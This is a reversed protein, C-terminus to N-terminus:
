SEHDREEATRRAPKLPKGTLYSLYMYLAPSVRFVDIRDPLLKKKRKAMKELMRHQLGPYKEEIETSLRRASEGTGGQGARVIYKLCMTFTGTYSHLIMFDDVQAALLLFDPKGLTIFWERVRELALVADFKRINYTNMVSSSRQLYYTLGRDMFRVSAAHSLAKCIFETDEGAVAGSTYRLGSQDILSKKYAISGSWLKTTRKLLWAKLTEVGDSRRATKERWTFSTLLTGTENVLEFPWHIIDPAEVDIVELLKPILDEGLCDDGDLFLVYRGEAEELGMNRATSVGGNEKALLRFNPLSNKDIFDRVTQGTGDTSGDNVVIVEVEGSSQSLISLLTKLIFDRVNYAPIIVSLTRM